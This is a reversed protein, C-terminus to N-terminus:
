DEKNALNRRLKLQAGLLKEKWRSRKIELIKNNLTVRLYNNQKNENLPVNPRL